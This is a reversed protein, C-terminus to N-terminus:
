ATRDKDRKGMSRPCWEFDQEAWHELCSILQCRDKIQVIVSGIEPWMQAEAMYQDGTVGERKKKKFFPFNYNIIQWQPIISM